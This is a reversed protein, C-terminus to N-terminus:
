KAVAISSEFARYVADNKEEAPETFSVQVLAAPTPIALSRARVPSKGGGERPLNFTVIVEVADVDHIKIWRPEVLYALDALAARSADTSRKLAAVAITWTNM